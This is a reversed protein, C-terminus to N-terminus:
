QGGGLLGGLLGGVVDSGGSTAGSKSGTGSGAKRQGGTLGSLLEQAVGTSLNNALNTSVKTGLSGLLGGLLGGGTGTGGLLTGVGITKGGLIFQDVRLHTGLNLYDGPAVRDILKSLAVIAQLTAPFVSRVSVLEQLIPGAKRIMSLLQTRTQRVVSNATGGFKELSSLLNTINALNARLVRSAPRVDVLARHIIQRRQHLMLSVSNLANLTRDIDGSAANVQTLMRGSRELLDRINNEHGGLAKNAETTITQLQSLGGGNILLSASALADEVTPATSTSHEGLVAGNTLLAGTTPNRLDVFLEGLPTTYRLRATAGSRVKADTRIDMTVRAKFDHATVKTVRGADVGNVRVAAGNALNLAEGFDATVAITKGSQGSGPLPLSSFTPGACGSLVLALVSSVVILIPARRM